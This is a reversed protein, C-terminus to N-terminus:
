EHYGGETFLSDPIFTLKYEKVIMLPEYNKIVQPFKNKWRSLIEGIQMQNKIHLDVMFDWEGIACDIFVVNQDTKLYNIFQYREQQTMPKTQLLINHWEYGYVRPNTKITFAQILGKHAMKQIKNKVTVYNVGIVRAIDINRKRTDYQLQKLIKLDLKDLSIKERKGFYHAVKLPFEKENYLYKKICPYAELVIFFSRKLIIDSFKAYIKELCAHFEAVDKVLISVILNWQGICSVLWCIEPLSRLFHIVEKEKHTYTVDLQLFLNYFTYGLKQTDLIAVYHTIVKENLKKIRYNLSQKSIHIHKAIKTLPQRSNKELEVLIKIDKKDLSVM